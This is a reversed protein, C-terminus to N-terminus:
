ARGVDHRTTELHDLNAAAVGLAVFVASALAISLIERRTPMTKRPNSVIVAVDAVEATAAGDM